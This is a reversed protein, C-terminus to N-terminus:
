DLILSTLSRDTLDEPNRLARLEAKALDTETFLLCKHGHGDQEKVWVAFYADNVNPHNQKKTNRVKVLQGLRAKM